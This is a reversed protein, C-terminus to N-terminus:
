RVRASRVRDGDVFAGWPGSATGIWAYGGDLHPYRGHMVFFQSSGTDRGSLAMGVTLPAFPLPSTECRLSPQDPAGGYGDGEPAGLQTVFGPVVRHVVMGDYFGRKTLDVLRAVTVPAVEPDLTVTLEGVDTDFVLTVASAPISSLESPADGGAAPAECVVDKKGLAGEMAKQAHERLVPWPSRCLEDLRPAAEKLALAGVADLLSAAIEPDAAWRPSELAERLAKVVAPAAAGVVADPADDKKDKDKGPKKGKKDRPKGEASARQPRKAIVDAATAVIGGRDSSLADALLAAGGVVEGHEELLALAEERARLPGRAVIERFALLRPGVLEARGLVAVRTRAGIAPDRLEEASPPAGADAAGADPAARAGAGADAPPQASPASGVECGGLIPDDFREGVVLRAAACRIWSIRRAVVAPAGAPLALTALAKLRERSAANVAAADIAELVSLLVGLDEGVLASAAIPDASPALQVAADVLARQGPKGLRRLARAAEARETPTFSGAAGVIRALESVAAEDARGLARVAFLRAEGADALRATAVERIRTVVTPPVSELRGVAFLAQPIPAAAASGSAANLLAVLTEERLKKKAAAVDGLAVAAAAALERSGALWATLTPESEDAACRGVARAAATTFPAQALPSSPRAASPQASASGAPAPAPAAVVERGVVTAVLATVSEKEHGKCAFGVGYAAWSRVQEDEDALARILGPRAADTGIRALARVAARRVAVDRSQLDDPTIEAAVRRHEARLLAGLREVGGRADPGAPAPTSSAGSATPAGTHGAPDPCGSLVLASALAWLAPSRM